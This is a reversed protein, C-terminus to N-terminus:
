RRLAHLQVLPEDNEGKTTVLVWDPGVQRVEWGLPTTATAALRGEADFIEWAATAAGPPVHRAWFLAQPDRVLTTYAPHTASWEALELAGREGDRHEPATEALVSDLFRSRDADGVPAVPRLVRLIRRIAGDDGLEEVEYRDGSSRFWSSDAFALAGRPGFPMRGVWTSGEATNYIYTAGSAAEGIRTGTGSAQMLWVNLTDRYTGSPANARPRTSFAYIAGDQRVMRPQLVPRMVMGGDTVPPLREHAQEWELTGDTAFSTVTNDNRDWAVVGGGGLLVVDLGSFEGPGEGRRGLLRLFAGTADFVRVENARPESVVIEGTPVRIAAAVQAFQEEAIAEDDGLVVRPVTDIAFVPTRDDPPPSEAITIGASDRVSARPADTAAGCAACWLLLSFAAHRPM